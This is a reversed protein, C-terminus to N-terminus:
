KAAQGIALFEEGQLSAGGVLGGDIDAQAFLEGASSAKVSGGYLISIKQGQEGLCGRIFQHVEQAQEPTATLGTGIAWVPEYASVSNLLAGLSVRELVAAIQSEVVALTSGAQREELTEGVCLVPTLGSAQAAVFKEAVVQSNEGFLSRRESHGVLVYDCGLDALMSPSIEGTYAGKDFQSVNQAGLKLSSGRIADAVASLYVYPVCVALEAADVRGENLGTILESLLAKNSASSGNMKWNGIVLQRRM